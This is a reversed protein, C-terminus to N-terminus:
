EQQANALFGRDCESLAGKGKARLLGCTNGFDGGWSVRQHRRCRAELAASQSAVPAEPGSSASAPDVQALGSFPM